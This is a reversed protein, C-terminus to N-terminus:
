DTIRNNSAYLPILTNEINKIILEQKNILNSICLTWDVQMFAFLSEFLQCFVTWIRQVITQKLMMAKFDKFLIGLTEYDDFRKKLALLMYTMFVISITAIHADLDTSQCSALKLNQKCDKFFVEISWRNKYYAMAKGFTLKGNTSVLLNWNNQGKMKIWYGRMEIGKYVFTLAIYHCKFKQSYHSNRRKLEPVKAAKYNKGDITVIRNTKMLGIVHLSRNLRRIGRIFKESIFWSDALVYDAKMWKKMCRKIMQLAMSIKDMSVESVRKYGASEPNRTKSFQANLEKNKLGRNGNRGPENHISFDIPLFTKGDTYGLTLVKMGLRYTHACHDYVKGVLETKKGTKDLLTDDLVLFEPEDTSNDSKAIILSLIQRFFLMMIRRWQIGTNNLFDYLVDKQHSLEKSFGSQMLQAVNSFDLFRLVFLTQFVKCGEVGRKKAGSFLKNIYRLDFQGLLNNFINVLTEPSHQCYSDIESLSKTIKNRQM